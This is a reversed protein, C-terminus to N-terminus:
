ESNNGGFWKKFKCLGLSVAHCAFFVKMKYQEVDESMKLADLAQQVEPFRKKLDDCGFMGSVRNIANPSPLRLKLLNNSYKETIRANTMVRKAVNGLLILAKIDPNWIDFVQKWFEAAKAEMQKDPNLNKGNGKRTWVVANSVAVDELRLKLKAGIFIAQLALKITGDDWPGVGIKDPGDEYPPRPEKRGLRTMVYEPKSKLEQLWQAYKDKENRIMQSEALVLIGNWDEPVYPLYPENFLVNEPAESTYKKCVELLAKEQDENWM